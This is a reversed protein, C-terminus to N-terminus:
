LLCLLSNIKVTSGQVLTVKVYLIQCVKESWVSETYFSNIIAITHKMLTAISCSETTGGNKKPNQDGLNWWYIAWLPTYPFISSVSTDALFIGHLNSDQTSLVIKGKSFQTHKDFVYERDRM